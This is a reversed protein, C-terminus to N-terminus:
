NDRGEESGLRAIEANEVIPTRAGERAVRLMARGVQESTCVYKPFVTRWVPYLGGMVTYLARYLPTKSKIGHLPQIYGPRFMFAARFPLRLLANETQGKVRAWMSRGRESSDTGAGSVYVFTMAPSVKVLTEAAALTFDYTVRRYEAESMGASSVGLCFFCADYGALESAVPAFDTFDRHQLERLKPHEQGTPSRGVALVQEVDPALLCERLVAQGVMGTAGFLIVKM